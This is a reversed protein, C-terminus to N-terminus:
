IANLVIEFASELTINSQVPTSHKNPLPSISDNKLVQEYEIYMSQSFCINPNM